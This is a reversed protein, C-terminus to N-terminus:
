LRQKTYTFFNNEVEQFWNESDNKTKAYALLTKHLASVFDRRTQFPKFQANESYWSVPRINVIVDQKVQCKVPYRESSGAMEWIKKLWLNKISFQGNKLAYAFILYDADLRYAQTKLSRCYDEFNSMDFNASRNFDFTKIELLNNTNTQSDLLFDPFEQTNEKTRFEINKSKM